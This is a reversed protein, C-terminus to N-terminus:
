RRREDIKDDGENGQLNDNDKGRDINDDGLGGRITMM